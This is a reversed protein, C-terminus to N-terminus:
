LGSLRLCDVTQYPSRRLGALGKMDVVDHQALQNPNEAGAVALVLRGNQVNQSTRSVESNANSSRSTRTRARASKRAPLPSKESQRIPRRLRRAPHSRVTVNSWASLPDVVNPISYRAGAIGLRWRPAGTAQVYFEQLVQVSLALEGVPADLLEIAIQPKPREAPDKTIAYLLVNTDIFKM